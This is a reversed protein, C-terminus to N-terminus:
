QNVVAPVPVVPSTLRVPKFRPFVHYIDLYVNGETQQKLSFASRFGDGCFDTLESM